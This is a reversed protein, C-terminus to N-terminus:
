FDSDIGTPEVNVVSDTMKSIRFDGFISAARYKYIINPIGDLCKGGPFGGPFLIRTV